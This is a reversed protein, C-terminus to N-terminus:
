GTEEEPWVGLSGPTVRAPEGAPVARDGARELVARVAGALPTSLSSPLRAGDRHLDDLGRRDPLHLPGAVPPAGRGAALDAFAHSQESRARQNRGARNVVALIRGPDVGHARLDDVVRVLAHLGKVGPLGVAVVVDARAVSARALVNREEIEVSGTEAQGELDADVDAVVFRFSRQLGALAEDLSRPRLATWDQHRRLGLLLRYRRNVVDYTLRRIEEDSPRGHRHADVLEPLGPVIDRADHLMALDANLRLDAVLVLGLHDDDDALGQGLAMAVTSTGTGGRGTVAILRGLGQPAAGRDPSGATLSTAGGIMQSVQGLEDLLEQRDFGPHLVARAGLARWDRDSRGDDVVVVSVGHAGALDLLDRDVEGTAADVLVASFPRGSGLRARLEDAGICKVFELPISGVTAWRAVSAFWDSRATALGLAVYRDGAM